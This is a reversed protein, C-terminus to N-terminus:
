ADWRDGPRAGADGPRGDLRVAVLTPARRRRGAPRVARVTRGAATGPAVPARGPPPPRGACGAYTPAPSASRAAAGAVGDGRVRPAAAAPAARPLPRGATPPAVAGSRLRGRRLASGARPASSASRTPRLRRLRGDAVARAPPWRDGAVAAAAVLVNLRRRRAAGPRLEDRSTAGGPRRSRGPAPRQALEALVDDLRAAVEAPM